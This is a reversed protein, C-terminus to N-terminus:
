AGSTHVSKEETDHCQQDAGTLGRCNGSGRGSNGIRGADLVVDALQDREPRPVRQARGVIRLASDARRAGPELGFEFANRALPVAALELHAREHVFDALGIANGSRRGHDVHDRDQGAALRRADDRHRTVVVRTAAVREVGLGVRRAGVVVSRAGRQHELARPLEGTELRARADGEHADGAFLLTQEARLRQGVVPARLALRDLGEQSAVDDAARV